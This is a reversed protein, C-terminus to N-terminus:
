SKFCRSQLRQKEDGWRQFIALHWKRSPPRLGHPSAVESEEGNDANKPGPSAVSSQGRRCARVQGDKIPTIFTPSQLPILPGGNDSESDTGPNGIGNGCWCALVAETSDHISTRPTTLFLHGRQDPQLSAIDFIDNKDRGQSSM